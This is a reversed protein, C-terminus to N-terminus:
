KQKTNHGCDSPVSSMGDFLKINGIKGECSAVSSNYLRLTGKSESLEAVDANCLVLKGHNDHIRDIKLRTDSAPGIVLKGGFNEIVAIHDAQVYKAGNEDVISNLGVELKKGHKMLQECLYAPDDSDSPSGEDESTCPEDPFGLDTGSPEGGNDVVVVAGAKNMETNTDSSVGVKSCNQFGVILLLGAFLVILKRM